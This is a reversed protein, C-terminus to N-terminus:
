RKRRTQRSKQYHVIAPEADPHEDRHFDFIFCYEVPMFHIRLDKVQTLAIELARQDWVEPNMECETIWRDVLKLSRVNNRFYVTGSLVETIRRASWTYKCVSVDWPFHESGLSELLLPPRQVVADADIWIIPREPNAVMMDWIFRPKKACNKVWSGTDPMPKICHDLDHKELSAKMGAAVLGYDPTFFSVWLPKM